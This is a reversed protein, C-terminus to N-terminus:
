SKKPPSTVIVKPEGDAGTDNKSDDTSMLIEEGEPNVTELDDATCSSLSTLLCLIAFAFASKRTTKKFQTYRNQMPKM